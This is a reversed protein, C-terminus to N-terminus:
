IMKRHLKSTPVEAAKEKPDVMRLPVISGVLEGEGKESM